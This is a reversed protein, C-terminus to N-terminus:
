GKLCECLVKIDDQSLEPYNGFYFGCDHILDAGPLDYQHEVYKAYFPQRQMSGSIVPRVEVNNDEFIKVYKERIEATICIVPCSFNSLVSIHDRELPVFDDNAAIAAAFIDYNKERLKVNGPLYQMQTCGIFGTFETPRLNYGLDFFSYRENFTSEVGGAEAIQDRTEEDLDRVWGNARVIKLMDYLKKDNTCVMGGEVTSMHHAVYFSFSSMDGFSGTLKGDIETGLSECNDEILIIYNDDCKSKITTLDGCFGLANTIFLADLSVDKLRNELDGSMMNITATSCDIPVPILGHQILPMVNTSWTVASFGVHDGVKLMGLNKLVQFIALNASGGSNFLVAYDMKQYAAFSKEFQKCYKNMSLFNDSLIFDALAKRTEKENSFTCKMLPIM